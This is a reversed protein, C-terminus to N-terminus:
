RLLMEVLRESDRASSARKDLLARLTLPAQKSGGKVGQLKQAETLTDAMVWQVMQQYDM